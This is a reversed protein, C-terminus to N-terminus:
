PVAGPAPSNPLEEASSALGARIADTLISRGTIGSRSFVEDGQRDLVAVTPLGYVGLSSSVSGTEDLLVPYPFPSTEVFQRVTERDEGVNVAFFRVDQGAFDEALLELVKAQARCPSCWSAWFDLLVVSGRHNGPGDSGGDLTPLVMRSMTRDPAAEGRQGLRWGLLAAVVVLAVALVFLGVAKM